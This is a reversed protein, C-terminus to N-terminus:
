PTPGTPARCCAPSSTPPSASGRRRATRAHRRRAAGDGGRRLARLGGAGQGEDGQPAGEPRRRGQRPRPRERHRARAGAGLRARRPRLRPSRRPRRAPPVRPRQLPPGPQRRVEHAGDDARHPDPHQRRRRAHRHRLDGAAPGARRAARRPPPLAPLMGAHHVGVGNRVLRDLTAGFGKGMRVGSLAAAIAERQERTTVNLSVLAQAREIAAAQNAHVVYVPSLGDAVAERVSDAVPTMRWQHYLPTPRHVSTVSTVPRGSREELDTTIATMDGLTASALLFQCRTLELLPVQWAWGRDADGYYHFEDLCAFGVDSAPGSVLAQNALVEATCVLVPAAPTSRRTAPRWASTARRRAARRPRLVERRRAGQDAGDVRGAPGRQPGAPHRGRRRPEQGLRDADGARRPRRRRPRVGAEEQHPYLPRGGDAAWAGFAELVDVPDSGPPPLLDTLAAM